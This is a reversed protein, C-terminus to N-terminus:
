ESDAELGKREEVIAQLLFDPSVFVAQGVNTPFVAAQFNDKIMGPIWNKIFHDLAIKKPKHNVFEGKAYEEAFAQEPWFLLAVRGDDDKGMAWGDKFLGWLEEFDAVKRVFYGFRDNGSLSAVGELKKPHM